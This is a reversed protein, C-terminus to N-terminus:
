SGWYFKFEWHKNLKKTKMIKLIQVKDRFLAMHDPVDNRFLM